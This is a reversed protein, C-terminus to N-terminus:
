KYLSSNLIYSINILSLLFCLYKLRHPFKLKRLFKKYVRAVNEKCSDAKMLLRYLINNQLAYSICPILLQFIIFLAFFVQRHPQDQNMEIYQRVIGRWTRTVIIHLYKNFIRIANKSLTSPIDVNHITEGTELSELTKKKRRGSLRVRGIYIRESLVGYWQWFYVYFFICKCEFRNMYKLLSLLVLKARVLTKMQTSSILCAWM